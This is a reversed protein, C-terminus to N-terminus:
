VEGAKGTQTHKCCCWCQCPSHVQSWLPHSSNCPKPQVPAQVINAKWLRGPLHPLCCYRGKKKTPLKLNGLWSNIWFIPFHWQFKFFCKKKPTRTTNSKFSRGIWVKRKIICARREYTTLIILGEQEQFSASICHAITAQGSLFNSAKDMVKGLHFFVRRGIRITHSVVSVGSASFMPCNSAHKLQIGKLCPGWLSVSWRKVRGHPLFWMSLELDVKIVALDKM